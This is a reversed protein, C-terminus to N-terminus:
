TKKSITNTLNENSIKDNLNFDKVVKSIEPKCQSDNRIIERFIQCDCCCSKGLAFPQALFSEVYM